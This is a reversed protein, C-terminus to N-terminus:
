TVMDRSPMKNFVRGADETRRCKAYMDVLSTGVFLDSDWGSWIIQEHACRGEELAVINACANMVWTFTVSDPQVGEHQM